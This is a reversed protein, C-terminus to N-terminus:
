QILIHLKPRYLGENEGSRSRFDSQQIIDYDRQNTFGKQRLFHLHKWEFISTKTVTININIINRM